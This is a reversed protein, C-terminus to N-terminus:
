EGTESAAEGDDDTGSQLTHEVLTKMGRRLRQSAATDSVGLSAGLEQLDAKRPVELYGARVAELLADRQPETLGYEQRGHETTREEYLRRVTPDTGKARCADFFRDVAGRTPFKVRFEWGRDTGVLKQVIGGVEVLHRYVSADVGDSGLEVQFLRRNGVDTLPEVRLVTPDSALDAGFADLDGGTAWVLARLRDGDVANSREWEVTTEPNRAFSQEFITPDTRFEVIIM